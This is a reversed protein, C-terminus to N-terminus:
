YAGHDAAIAEIILCKVVLAKISYALGDSCTSAVPNGHVIIPAAIKDSAAALIINPM